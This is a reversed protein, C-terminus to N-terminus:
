AASLGLLKHANDLMIKQRVEPKFPLQEFDSLWPGLPLSPIDIGLLAKDPIMSTVQQVVKEPLHKPAWSSLDIYFNPRHRPIALGESMWPWSPHVSIIRLDQFDAALDDLYMPQCYKLKVGGGGKRGFDAAAYGAHFLIILELEQAEEWLPYFRTDNSHFHQGAPNLDEIGILGMDKIRRIKRRAKEGQCRGIAGMGMFVDTHEKVADAIFNNPIPTIGTSSEDTGNMLVAMMKHERCQDMQVEIPLGKTERKFYKATAEQKAKAEPGQLARARADHVNIHIGVMDM